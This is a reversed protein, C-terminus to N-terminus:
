VACSPEDGNQAKCCHEDGRCGCDCGMQRKGGESRQQKEERNNDNKLILNGFFGAVPRL